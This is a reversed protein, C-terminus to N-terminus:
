RVLVPSPRCNRFSVLASSVWCVVLALFYGICSERYPHLLLCRVPSVLSVRAFSPLRVSVVVVEFPVECHLLLMSVRISYSCGHHPALLEHVYPVNVSEVVIPCM